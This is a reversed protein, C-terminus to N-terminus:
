EEGQNRENKKGTLYYPVVDEVVHGVGKVAYEGWAIIDLKNEPPLMPVVYNYTGKYKAEAVLLSKGQCKVRNGIDIYNYSLVDYDIFDKEKLGQNYNEATWLYDSRDRKLTYHFDQHLSGSKGSPVGFWFKPGDAASYPVLVTEFHSAMRKLFQWDTEEYQLIFKELKQGNSAKDNFDAGSYDKIVEQIMQKYKMEQDQFSRSKIKLDLEFTYSITEVELYHIGQVAKVEVSTVVGKFVTRVKTGDVVQKVEIEDQVTAKRVCTDGVEEAVIGKFKMKAHDNVSQLIELERLEKLEYPSIVEINEYGM